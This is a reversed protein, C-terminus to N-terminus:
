RKTYIFDYPLFIRVVKTSMDNLNTWKQWLYQWIMWEWEIKTPTPPSRLFICNKDMKDLIENSLKSIWSIFVTPKM